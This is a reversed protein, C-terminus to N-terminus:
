SYLNSSINKRNRNILELKFYEQAAVEYRKREPEIENGIKIKNMIIERQEADVRNKYMHLVQDEIKIKNEAEEIEDNLDNVKRELAETKLQFSCPTIEILKDHFSSPRLKRHGGSYGRAKSKPQEQQKKKEKTTNKPM